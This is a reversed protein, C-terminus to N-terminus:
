IGNEKISLQVTIKFNVSFHCVDNLNKESFSLIINIHEM